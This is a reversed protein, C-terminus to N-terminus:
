RGDSRKLRTRGAELIGQYEPTRMDNTWMVIANERNDPYYAKRVAVSQFGYKHYLALAHVNGERVELTSRHMGEAIALELMDLLLLEGIGRRRFPPDVAITTIHAEDIVLWMGAYGVVMGATQAVLYRSSRNTLENSFASAHWPLSYCRKEIDSIQELHHQAMREITIRDVRAHMETPRLIGCAGDANRGCFPRRSQPLFRRM